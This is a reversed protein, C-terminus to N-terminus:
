PIASLAAILKRARAVVSTHPDSLLGKLMALVETRSQSDDRSFKALTEMSYNVVIWDKKQALNRKLIRCATARQSPTLEVEGLIQALHWQVSAQEIVAVETLLQPVFAQLWAPRQRCVKELADSARMRIAEDEELLCGFLEKLRTRNGLALTVVEETRGLTRPNGGTLMAIIPEQNSM